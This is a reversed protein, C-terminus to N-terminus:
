PRVTSIGCADVALLQHNDLWLVSRLGPGLRYSSKTSLDDRAVISLTQDDASVM